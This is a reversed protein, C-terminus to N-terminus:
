EVGNLISPSTAVTRLRALAKSAHARVTASSCHVVPAIQDDTWGEYFRLVLVARQQRPLQALLRWMADREAHAAAHDAGDRESSADDPPEALFLLRSARRRKWSLFDNVIVKRVSADPHDLASIRSWRGYVRTLAEQVLDESLHRDGTLVYGFRLLAPGRAGVYEEFSHGVAESKM